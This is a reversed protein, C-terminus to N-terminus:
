KKKKMRRLNFRKEPKSDKLFQLTRLTLVEEDQDLNQRCKLPPLFHFTPRPLQRGYRTPWASRPPMQLRSVKKLIYYLQHLRLHIWYVKSTSTKSTSGVTM